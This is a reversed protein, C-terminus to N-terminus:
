KTILVSDFLSSNKDTISKSFINKSIIFDTDQYSKPFVSKRLKENSWIIEFVGDVDGKIANALRNIIQQQTVGRGGQQIYYLQDFNDISRLYAKFQGLDKFM